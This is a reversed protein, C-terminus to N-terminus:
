AKQERLRSLTRVWEEKEREAHKLTSASELLRTARQTWDLDPESVLTTRRLERLLRPEDLAGLSSHLFDFVQQRLEKSRSAIEMLSRLAGYRAWELVKPDRIISSLLEFNQQCPFSGLVHAIRWALTGFPGGSLNDGVSRCFLLLTRAAAIRSDDLKARRFVNAATWGLVPDAWLCSFAEEDPPASLDALYLRTWATWRGPPVRRAEVLRRIDDISAARKLEAALPDLTRELRRRASEATEVFRDFKKEALLACLAFRLNETVPTSDPRFSTFTDFCAGYNWDYLAEIFRDAQEPGLLEATFTLSEIATSDFTAADLTETNWQEPKLSAVQKGVLFDHALQHFFMLKTRSDPKRVVAGEKELKAAVEAGAGETEFWDREFALADIRYADFAAKSVRALEDESLRVIKEFYQEFVDKRLRSAGAASAGSEWLKLQVDLFFPICLLDRQEPSLAALTGAPVLASVSSESLRDVAARIFQKARPRANMRDAAIIRLTGRPDSVRALLSLIRDGLVPVVENLGDVLLAVPSTGQVANDFQQPTGQRAYLFADELEIEDPDKQPEWGKLDIFFVDHELGLAEGAIARLLNSKGTGGPSHILVRSTKPHRMIEAPTMRLSAFDGRVLEEYSDALSATITFTHTSRGIPLAVATAVAARRPEAESPIRGGLANPVHTLDIGFRLVDAATVSATASAYAHFDDSKFKDGFDSVGRVVLWPVGYDTCAQAFGSGEMEAGVLRGHGSESLGRLFTSDRILKEGSAIASQHLAPAKAVNDEHEMRGFLRPPKPRQVSMADLAQDIRKLASGLYSVLDQQITRPIRVMEPRPEFRKVGEHELMAGPEYAYVFDAIVVDGVKVKGRLGAAIGVLIMFKPRYYEIMESAARAAGPNGAAGIACLAYSYERGTLESRLSGEYYVTGTGNRKHRRAPDYGFARKAADLEPSIVTLIGVDSQPM